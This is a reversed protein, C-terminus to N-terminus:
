KTELALVRLDAKGNKPAFVVFYPRQDPIVTRNASYVIRDHGRDKVALQIRLTYDQINALTFIMESQVPIFLETDGLKATLPMGSLNFIGAQNPQINFQRLNIPYFHFISTGEVQKEIVLFLVKKWDSPIQAQGVQEFSQGKASDVKRYFRMQAPGHYSYFESQRAHTLEVPEHNAGLYLEPPSYTPLFGSEQAHSTDDASPSISMGYKSMDGQPWLYMSYEINVVPAEQSHCFTAPLWLLLFINLYQRIPHM